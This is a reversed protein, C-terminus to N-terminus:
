SIQLNRAPEAGRGGAWGRTVGRTVIAKCFYINYTGVTTILTLSYLFSSAFSWQEHKKAMDESDNHTDLVQVISSSAPKSATAASGFAAGQLFKFYKM